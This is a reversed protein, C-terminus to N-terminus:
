IRAQLANLLRTLNEELAEQPLALNLRIHGEGEQGFMHGMNVFCQVEDQVLLDYFADDSLGLGSFDLWQTYTGESMPALIQPAKEKFFHHVFDMNEWIVAKCAELWAAGQTYAIECAKWGLLNVSNAHNASLVQVFDERLKPDAIIINSVQLGALNFSKSPSTCTIVRDELRPDVAAFIRHQYGPRVFDYWIEDSIVYLDNDIVIEALQQLEEQTWVRGTPNHPSCLILLKNEPRAAQDALAEFDIHYFSGEKVLPINVEKRQTDSIAMGFPAYVPRFIMVGDGPQTLSRVGAYLAAVVGPCNVIWSPQIQWGHQDKQWQVVSEKFADSPASYGLIPQDGIFDKLGTVIEPANPFEMDAVSMPLVGEKRNPNQQYMLQWKRSAYPRRDIRSTFDYAM